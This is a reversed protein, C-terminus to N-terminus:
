GDQCKKERCLPSRRSPVRRIKGGFYDCNTCFQDCVYISPMMNTWKNCSGPQSNAVKAVGTVKSCNRMKKWIHVRRFHLPHCVWLKPAATPSHISRGKCVNAVWKEGVGIRETWFKALEAGGFDVKAVIYVFLILLLRCLFLHNWWGSRGCYFFRLFRITKRTARKRWIKLSFTIGM